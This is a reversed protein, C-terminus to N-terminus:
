ILAVQKAHRAIADHWCECAVQREWEDWGCAPAGVGRIRATERAGAWREASPCLRLAIDGVSEAVLAQDTFRPVTVPRPELHAADKVLWNRDRWLEDAYTM